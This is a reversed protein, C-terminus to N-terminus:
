DRLKCFSLHVVVVRERPEMDRAVLFKTQLSGMSSNVIQDLAEKAFVIEKQTTQKSEQFKIQEFEGVDM